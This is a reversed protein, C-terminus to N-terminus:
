RTQQRGHGIGRVVGQVVFRGPMSHTRHPMIQLARLKIRGANDIKPNTLMGRPARYRKRVTGCPDLAAEGFLGQRAM